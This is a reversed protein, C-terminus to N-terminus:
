QIVSDLNLYTTIVNINEYKIENQYTKMMNEDRLQM